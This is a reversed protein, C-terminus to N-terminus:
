GTEFNIRRKLELEAELREIRAEQEVMKLCKYQQVVSQSDTGEETLGAAISVFVKEQAELGEM